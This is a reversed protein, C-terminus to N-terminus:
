TPIDLETTENDFDDYLDSVDFGEATHVMKHHFGTHSTTVQHFHNFGSDLGCALSSKLIYPGGNSILIYPGSLDVEYYWNYYCDWGCTDSGSQQHCILYEWYTFGCSYVGSVPGTTNQTDLTQVTVPNCNPVAWAAGFSVVAAALFIAAVRAIKKVQLRRRNGIPRDLRPWEGASM